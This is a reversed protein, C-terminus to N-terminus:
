KQSSRIEHYNEKNNNQQCQVIDRQIMDSFTERRRVLRFDNGNVAVIGPKNFNFSSELSNFYAGSDTLALIDGEIVRPLLKNKYILDSAFCCPGTITVTEKPERNFDNCLFMEHYEYYTPMTVTGLGADTILWKNRNREKIRHVRVLLTQVPSILCRGPEFYIDPINSGFFDKIANYLENHYDEFSFFKQDRFKLRYSGIAQSAFMEFSSLERTTMSAFGGGVDLISIVFGATRIMRFIPYMKRIVDSYVSPDRLGTGIHFHIGQFTLHPSEKIIRLAESIEIEDMGFSSFRSGTASNKNLGKPIYDPNFRLLVNMCVPDREQIILLNMLESISDIVILHVKLKLCKLLFSETKCPGNIIIDVPSFGCKLALDLEFETMAEASLGAKKVATIVAPVSNCKFPYFVRSRYSSILSAYHRFEEARKILKEEDLVFLPTGFKEALTTMKIDNILLEGENNLTLGFDDPTLINKM